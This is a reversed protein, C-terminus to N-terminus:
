QKRARLPVSGEDTFYWNTVRAQYGDEPSEEGETQVTLFNGYVDHFAFTIRGLGTGWANIVEWYGCKWMEAAAIVDPHRAHSWHRARPQWGLEILQKRADHYTMGQMQPLPSHPAHAGAATAKAHPLQAELEARAGAEAARKWDNLLATPFRMPDSDVLKACRQCLWVANDILAREEGTLAPDFRPGGEAAATIHSAVGLNVAKNATSHPGHTPLRCSPNSCRLAVRKSLV